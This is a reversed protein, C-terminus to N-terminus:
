IANENLGYLFNINNIPPIIIIGLSTWSDLFRLLSEQVLSNVSYFRCYLFIHKCPPRLFSSTIIIIIIDMERDMLNVFTALNPNGNLLWLKHIMFKSPFLGCKLPYTKNQTHVHTHCLNM